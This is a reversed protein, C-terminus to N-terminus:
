PNIFVVVGDGRFVLGAAAKKAAADKRNEVRGFVVAWRDYDTSGFRFKGLTTHKRIEALKRNIAAGDLQFTDPPRPGDNPDETLLLAYPGAPPAECTQQDLWTGDQRFSYRGLVAEPKGEYSPLAQLIECVTLPVIPGDDALAVACACALVLLYVFRRPGAM